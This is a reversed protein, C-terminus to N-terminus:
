KKKKLRYYRKIKENLEDIDDDDVDEQNPDELEDEDDVIELDLDDDKTSEIEDELEKEEHFKEFKKIYKKM